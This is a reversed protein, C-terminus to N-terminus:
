TIALKGYEKDPTFEISLTKFDTRIVGLSVGFYRLRLNEVGFDFSEEKTLSVNTADLITCPRDEITSIVQRIISEKASAIANIAQQQIDLSALHQASIVGVESATFYKPRSGNEIRKDPSDCEPKFKESPTWDKMTAM